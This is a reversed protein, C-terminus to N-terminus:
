IVSHPLIFLQIHGSFGWWSGPGTSVSKRVNANEQSRLGSSRDASPKLRHAQISPTTAKNFSTSRWQCAPSCHGRSHERAQHRRVTAHMVHSQCAERVPRATVTLSTLDGVAKTRPMSSSSRVNEDPGARSPESRIPHKAERRAARSWASTASCRCDAREPAREIATLQLPRGAHFVSQETM